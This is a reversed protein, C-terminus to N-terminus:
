CCLSVQKNITKENFQHKEGVRKRIVLKVCILIYSTVIIIVPILFRAVALYRWLGYKDHETMFKGTRCNETRTNNLLTRDADALLLSDMQTILALTWVLVSVLIIYMTRYKLIKLPFYVAVFREISIEASCLLSTYFVVSNIYQHVECLMFNGPYPQTIIGGIYGSTPTMAASLFDAIALNMLQIKMGKGFRCGSIIIVIVTTNLIIGLAGLLGHITLNVADANM